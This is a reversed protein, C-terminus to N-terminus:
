CHEDYIGKYDPHTGDEVSDCYYQHEKLQDEYDMSMSLLLLLAISVLLVRHKIKNM